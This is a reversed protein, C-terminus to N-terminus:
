YKKLEGVQRYVDRIGDVMVGLSLKERTFQLAAVRMASLRMSDGLLADITSALNQEAQDDPAIAIGGGAAALEPLIGRALGVTPLGCAAAEAIVMGFAEHRSTLVQLAASQYLAPLHSHDVAAHFRVRDVIGLLEAQQKLYEFMRGDGQDGTITLTVSASRIRSFVRLASLHDKVANMSGVAVFNRSSPNTVSAAPTFLDTDVGLPVIRLRDASVLPRALAASYHCPAIVQDARLAQNVTWRSFRSLQLGYGIDRLGVLEGGAISVVSPVHLLRGAWQAILGTEDAWIAHLVDFPTRRHADRLALLTRLWLRLRGFGATYSGGNQPYIMAGYVPYATRRAPYRLAFVRVQDKETEALRRALNLYVPICWDREDASFGPILLGINM